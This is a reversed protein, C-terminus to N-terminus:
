IAFHTFFRELRLQKHENSSFGCLFAFDHVSPCVQGWGGMGWGDFYLRTSAASADRGVGEPYLSTTGFVCLLGM